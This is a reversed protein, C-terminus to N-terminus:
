KRRTLSQKKPRRFHPRQTTTATEVPAENATAVAEEEEGTDMAESERRKKWLWSEHFLIAVGWATIPIYLCAHIVVSVALAREDSMGFLGLALIMMYQFVGVNGPSSPVLMGFGLIAMTLYGAVISQPGLGYYWCAAVYMSGEVIWVVIGAVVAAATHWNFGLFLTAVHFRDILRAAWNFPKVNPCRLLNALPTGWIRIVVAGAFALGFIALGLYRLEGLWAHDALVIHSSSIALVLIAMLTLGDLVREVLISSLATVRGIHPASRYLYEMRLFEGGRAPLFNNGAFGLVVGRLAQSFRLTGPPLMWQWRQARIPFTCLYIAVLALPLRFGADAILAATHRLETHTLIFGIAIASVGIGFLTVLWKKM